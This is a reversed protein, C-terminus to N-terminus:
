FMIYKPLLIPLRENVEPNHIALWERLEDEDIDVEHYDGKKPVVNRSNGWFRGVNRYAKPVVKQEPKLAYKLMYRKAGQEERINEWQKVFSHVKIVNKWDKGGKDEICDAWLKAITERSVEDVSITLLVHFHPAGRKQFELFWIYGLGKFHYRMKTLFLNLHAKVMKGNTVVKAFTLTLLSRFEIITTTALFALRSLSKRSLMKIHNRSPEIKGQLAQKQERVVEIGNKHIKVRVIPYNAKLIFQRDWLETGGKANM